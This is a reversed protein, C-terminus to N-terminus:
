YLQILTIRMGATTSKGVGGKASSVAIISEIGPINNPRGKPASAPPPPPPHTHSSSWRLTTTNCIIQFHRNLLTHSSLKHFQM